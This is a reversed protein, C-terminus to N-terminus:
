RCDILAAEATFALPPNQMASVLTPQLRRQKDTQQALQHPVACLRDM